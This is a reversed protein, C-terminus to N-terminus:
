NWYLSCEHVKYKSCIARRWLANEDWGFRWIWKALMAKNKDRIKGIRLGGNAKSKGQSLVREM